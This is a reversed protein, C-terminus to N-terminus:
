EGCVSTFYVNGWGFSEGPQPENEECWEPSGVELPEETAEEGAIPELTELTVVAPADTVYLREGEQLEYQTGDEFLVTQAKAGCSGLLVLVLLGVWAASVYPNERVVQKFAAVYQEFNM